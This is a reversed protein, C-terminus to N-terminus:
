RNLLWISFNLVAAFSTWLIYALLLVAAAISVRAFALITLGIAIWLLLIEIFAVLPMKLGFFLPTWLGNLILQLLFLALGIRVAGQDVGKHWVIAASVAMLVYLATWVPAFLWNPPTFFPKNLNAYWDAVANGTFLSGLLAASFTLALCVVLKVVITVKM